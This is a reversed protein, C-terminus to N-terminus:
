HPDVHAHCVALRFRVQMMNLQYHHWRLHCLSREHQMARGSDGGGGGDCGGGSEAGDGKAGAEGPDVRAETTM